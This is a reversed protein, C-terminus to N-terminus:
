PEVIEAFTSQATTIIACEDVSAMLREAEGVNNLAVAFLDEVLEADLRSLLYIRAWDAANAWQAAAQLDPPAQERLPQLAARPSPQSRLLEMGAGPPAQLDTLVVIKGGHAVVNRATELAQGVEDWTTAGDATPVTVLVTEPRAPWSARWAANLHQLAQRQVSEAGGALVEATTGRRGGPILQVAFQVGLLWGIEEILQRVPRDDEPRLERHGQGHTKAFAEPTSLGPYLVSMPSRTGQLPDFSALTIPLVFDADLLGRALYIREGDASTALYGCSGEKTPDHTEWRVADRAAEPLLHRPDAQQASSKWGAPQLILVDQPRIQCEALVPWVGAVISAAECLGRDMALVVRDGDVLATNLPPFDLPQSLGSRVTSAIEVTTDPGSHSLVVQGARPMWEWTEERGYELLWTKVIRKSGAFAM